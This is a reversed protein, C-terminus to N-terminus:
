GLLHFRPADNSALKVPCHIANDAILRRHPHTHPYNFVRYNPDMRSHHYHTRPYYSSNENQSM